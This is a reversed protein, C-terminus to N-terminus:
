SPWIRKLSNSAKLSISAPFYPLPTAAGAVVAKPTEVTEIVDFLYGALESHEETIHLWREDTVRIAVGNVSRAIRM